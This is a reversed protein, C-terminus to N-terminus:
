NGGNYQNGGVPIPTPQFTTAPPTFTPQTAPNNLLQSLSIGANGIGTSLSNAGALSGNATVTGSGLLANGGYEAASINQGASLDAANNQMTTGYQAANQNLTAGFQNAQNNLSADFQGANQTNLGQQTAATAGRNAVANQNNFNNQNATEYNTFAQQYNTGALGNAYQDAAKIDGGSLAGGQAAASRNVGALGQDLEFQYGPSMQIQAMTPQSNYVGGPALGAQIDSNATSGSATYPNLETNATNANTVARGGYYQAANTVAASNAQAANVDTAANTSASNLELGTQGQTSSGVLNGAQIATQKYAKAAKQAASDGFIGLGTQILSNAGQALAGAGLLAGM